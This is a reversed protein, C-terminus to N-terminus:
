SGVGDPFSVFPCAVFPKFPKVQVLMLIFVLVTSIRIDKIKDGM